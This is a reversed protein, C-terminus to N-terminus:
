TPVEVDDSRLALQRPPHEDPQVLAVWHVSSHDEGSVYEHQLVCDDSVVSAPYWDCSGFGNIGRVWLSPILPAHQEERFASCSGPMSCCFWSDDEIGSQMEALAPVESKTCKTPAACSPRSDAAPQASRPVPEEESEQSRTAIFQQLCVPCM